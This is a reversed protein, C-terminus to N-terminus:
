AMGARRQTVELLDGLTRIRLLDQPSFSARYLSELRAVIRLMERSDVPIDEGLIASGRVQVGSLDVFEGVVDALAELDPGSM